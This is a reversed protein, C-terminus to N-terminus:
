HAPWAPESSSNNKERGALYDESGSLAGQWLNSPHKHTDVAPKPIGVALTSEVRATRAPGATSGCVTVVPTYLLASPTLKTEILSQTTGLTKGPKGAASIPTGAMVQATDFTAMNAPM